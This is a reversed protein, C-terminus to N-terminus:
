CGLEAVREKIDLFGLGLAWYPQGGAHLNWGYTLQVLGNAFSVVPGVGVEFDKDSRFDVFSGNVGFRFDLSNWWKKRTKVEWVFSTGPAPKYDSPAEQDGDAATGRQVLLLTPDTRLTAGLDRVEVRWTYSRPRQPGYNVVTIEIRDGDELQDSPLHIVADQVDDVLVVELRQGDWRPEYRYPRINTSTVVSRLTPAADAAANQATGAEAAATASPASVTAKTLRVDTYGEVSLDFPAGDIPAVRAVVSLQFSNGVLFIQEVEAVQLERVNQLRLRLPALEQELAERTLDDRAQRLQQQQIDQQIDRQLNQLTQFYDSLDDLQTQLAGKDVLAAQLKQRDFRVHIIARRDVISFRGVSSRDQLSGDREEELITVFSRPHTPEPQTGQAIAEPCFALFCILALQTRCRVAYLPSM